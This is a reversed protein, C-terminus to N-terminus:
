RNGTTVHTTDCTGPGGTVPCWNGKNKPGAIDTCATLSALVILVVLFFVVVLFIPKSPAM